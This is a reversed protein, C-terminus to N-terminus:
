TPLRFIGFIELIGGDEFEKSEMAEKKIDLYLFEEKWKNKLGM